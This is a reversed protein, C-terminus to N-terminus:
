VPLFSAGVVLRTRIVNVRGQARAGRDEPIIPQSGM